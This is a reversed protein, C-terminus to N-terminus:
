TYTERAANCGQENRGHQRHDGRETQEQTFHVHRHSGARVVLASKGHGAFVQAVCEGSQGQCRDQEDLTAPHAAAHRYQRFGFAQARAIAAVALVQAQQQDAIRCGSTDPRLSLSFRQASLEDGPESGGERHVPLQKGKSARGRRVHQRM